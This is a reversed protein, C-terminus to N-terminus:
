HVIRKTQLSVRGFNILIALLLGTTALYHIAQAEYESILAAAAKLELIIKEEVVFDARYQGIILGKYNVTLLKQREFSISRHRLEHAMAEEYIAELFGPGLIRAGVVDYSLARYIIEAM